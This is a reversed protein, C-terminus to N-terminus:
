WWHHSGGGLTVLTQTKKIGKKWYLYCFTIEFNLSCFSFYLTVNVCNYSGDSKKVGCRLVDQNEPFTGCNIHGWCEEDYIAFLPANLCLNPPETYDEENTQRLLQLWIRALVCARVSPTYSLTSAGSMHLQTFLVTIPFCCPTWEQAKIRNSDLRAAEKVGRARKRINIRTRPFFSHTCSYTSWQM